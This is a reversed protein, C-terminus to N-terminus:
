IGTCIYVCTCTPIIYMYTYLINNHECRCDYKRVCTMYHVMQEAAGSQLTSGGVMSIPFIDVRSGVSLSM